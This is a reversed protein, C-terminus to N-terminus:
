SQFCGCKKQVRMLTFHVNGVPMSKNALGDRMTHPQAPHWTRAFGTELHGETYDGSLLESAACVAGCGAGADSKSREPRGCTLRAVLFHCTM